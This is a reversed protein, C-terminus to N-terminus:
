PGARRRPLAAPQRPGIAEKTTRPEGRQRAAKAESALRAARLRETKATEARQAEAVEKWVLNAEEARQARELARAPSPRHSRAGM